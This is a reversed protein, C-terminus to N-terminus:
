AIELKSWDSIKSYSLSIFCMGHAHAMQWHQINVDKGGVSFLPFEVIDGAAYVHPKDTAM